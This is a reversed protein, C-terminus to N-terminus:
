VKEEKNEAGCFKTQLFESELPSLDFRVIAESIIKKRNKEPHEQVIESIWLVAKRIKEGKPQLEETAAM